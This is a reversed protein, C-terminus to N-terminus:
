RRGEDDADTEVLDEDDDIEGRWYRDEIEEIEEESLGFYHGFEHIVTEGVMWVIDDASEADDEIPRQYITVRDPQAPAQSWPREPLPTGQYLGYLTDGEPIEMEDLTAQDPEDEVIVAVNDIADRFRRPITRLAEEVLREFAKRTLRAM